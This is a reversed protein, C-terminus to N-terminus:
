CRPAGHRLWGAPRIAQGALVLEMQDHFAGGEIFLLRPLEATAPTHKWLLQSRPPFGTGPGIPQTRAPLIGGVVPLQRPTVRLQFALQPAHLFGQRFGGGQEHGLFFDPPEPRLGLACARGRPAAPSSPTPARPRHRLRGGPIQRRPPVIWVTSVEVERKPTTRHRGTLKQALAELKSVDLWQSLPLGTVLCDVKDQGSLLLSALFLARYVPNGCLRRAIVPKMAFVKCVDNCKM